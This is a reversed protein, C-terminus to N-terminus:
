VSAGPADLTSEPDDPIHLVGDELRGHFFRPRNGTPGFDIDWLMLGLDRTEPIPEPAGDIPLVDAVFERCGFYPQHFRQGKAVRRTFM